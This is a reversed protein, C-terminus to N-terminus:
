ETSNTHKVLATNSYVAKSRIFALLARKYTAFTELFVRLFRILIYRVSVGPMLQPYKYELFIDISSVWCM